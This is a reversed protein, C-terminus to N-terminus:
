MMVLNPSFCIGAAAAGASVAELGVTQFRLLPPPLNHSSRQGLNWRRRHPGEAHCPPSRSECGSRGRKAHQRDSGDSALRDGAGSPSRDGGSGKRESSETALREQRSTGSVTLDAADLNPKERGTEELRDRGNKDGRARHTMTALSHPWVRHISRSEPQSAPSFTM